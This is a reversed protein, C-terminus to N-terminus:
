RMMDQEVSGQGSAAGMDYGRRARWGLDSSGEPEGARGSGGTGLQTSPAPRGTVDVLRSNGQMGMTEPTRPDISSGLQQITGNYGRDPSVHFQGQPVGRPKTAFFNKPSGPQEVAGSEPLRGCGVGLLAVAALGSLVKWARFGSQRM